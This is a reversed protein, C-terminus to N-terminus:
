KKDNRKDIRDKIIAYANKFDKLKGTQLITKSKNDKLLFVMRNENYLTQADADALPDRGGLVLFQRKLFFVEEIDEFHITIYQNFDKVISKSEFEILDHNIRLYQKTTFIAILLGIIMLILGFFYLVEYDDILLPTIILILGISFLSYKFYTKFLYGPIIEFKENEM